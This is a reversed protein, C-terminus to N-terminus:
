GIWPRVASMSLKAIFSPIDGQNLVPYSLCQPSLGGIALDSSHCHFLQDTTNTEPLTRRDWLGRGRLFEGM